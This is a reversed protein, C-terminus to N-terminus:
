SLDAQHCDHAKRGLWLELYLKLLALASEVPALRFGAIEVAGQSLRWEERM